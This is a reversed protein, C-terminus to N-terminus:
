GVKRREVSQRNSELRCLRCRTDPYRNEAIMSHLGKKCLMMDPRNKLRGRNQRDRMNDLQTGVYLHQPNVCGANDCHHLVQLNDPIEGVFAAYVARHARTHDRLHGYGQTHWGPWPM